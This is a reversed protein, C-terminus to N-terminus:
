FALNEDVVGGTWDGLTSATEQEERERENEKKTKEYSALQRAKLEMERSFSTMEKDKASMFGRITTVEGRLREIERDRTFRQYKLRDIEEQAEL